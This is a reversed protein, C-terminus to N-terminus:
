LIYINRIFEIVVDGWLLACWAGFTMFPIYPIRMDALPHGKHQSKRLIAKPQDKIKYKVLLLVGVTAGSFVGIWGSLITSLPGLVLGILPAFKSDGWGFGQKGKSVGPMLGSMSWGNMLIFFVSYGIAVLIRQGVFSVFDNRTFGVGIIISLSAAIVPLIWRDPVIGKEIDYMSFFYTVLVFLLYGYLLYIDSGYMTYTGLFMLGLFLESIPHYYPIPKKCKSCKGLLFMWSFVPSKEGFVLVNLFSAFSAGLIFFFIYLFIKMYM